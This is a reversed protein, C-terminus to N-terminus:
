SVRQLGMIWGSVWVWESIRFTRHVRDGSAGGSVEEKVEKDGINDRNLFYDTM